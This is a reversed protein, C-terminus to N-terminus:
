FDQIKKVFKEFYQEKELTKFSVKKKLFINNKKRTKGFIKFFQRKKSFIELTNKDFCSKNVKM